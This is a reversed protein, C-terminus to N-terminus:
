DIGHLGGRVCEWRPVILTGCGHAGHVPQQSRPGLRDGQRPPRERHPGHGVQGDYGDRRRLHRAAGVQGVHLADDGGAYPRGARPDLGQDRPDPLHRLGPRMRVALGLHLLGQLGPRGQGPRGHVSHHRRHHLERFFLDTLMRAPRTAHPSYECLWNSATSLAVGRSRIPLPYIEGIVVWAGPGWTSAFFFIYICIFAIQVSTAAKDDPRAVGVIAVIFECIVMGLAGYILLTRRGYREITYFSIPTSVVNVITTIMSLLFANQITGLQKFFATGFYFIFNIGTWQQAATPTLSVHRCPLFSPTCPSSVQMMQLSTGLITRRLNSSGKFLSGRFCNAWSGFYGSPPIVSQEYEHNAVIETLEDQIYQSDIPQGRLRSLTHAATDLKGKKVYYRPSDPLLFLGFALIIAWLIQLAIPIRYSGTNNFNQTGYDVCSALLLGLTVCFQYGSVIAGRVKRPSIEAM